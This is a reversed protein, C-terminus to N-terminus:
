GPRHGGSGTEGPMEANVLVTRRSHAPVEHTFNKEVGGDTLYTITATMSAESMNSLLIYEDFGDQTSGEAFYWTSPLSTSSNNIASGEVPTLGSASLTGVNRVSAGLPLDSGIQVRLTVVAEAGAAITGAPSGPSNVTLGSALPTTGGADPILVGNLTTSHTVYDTYAPIADTLSCGSAPASGTNRARLTYTVVQGRVVDGAPDSTKDM